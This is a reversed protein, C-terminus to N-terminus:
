MGTTGATSILDLKATPDITDKIAGFIIISGKDCGTGTWGANITPKVPRTDDARFKSGMPLSSPPRAHIADSPLRVAINTEKMSRM